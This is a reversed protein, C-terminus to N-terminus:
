FGTLHKKQTKILYIRPEENAKQFPPSYNSNIKINTLKEKTADLMKLNM